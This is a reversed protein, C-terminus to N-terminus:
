AKNEVSSNGISKCSDIEGEIINIGTALKFRRPLEGVIFETFLSAILFVDINNINFL